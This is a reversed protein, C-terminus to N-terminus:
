SAGLSTRMHVLEQIPHRRRNHTVNFKPFETRIANTEAELAEERTTFPEILILCLFYEKWDVKEKMHTKTRAPIFMTIGVYLLEGKPDYHRYLYGGPEIGQALFSAGKRIVRERVSVEVGHSHMRAASQAEFFTLVSNGNSEEYDDARAFNKMRNGGKGDTTRVIWPGATENRRYGLSLGHDIRVFYPKRRKPLKLRATRSELM